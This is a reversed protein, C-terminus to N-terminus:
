KCFCGVIRDTRDFDRKQRPKYCFLSTPATTINGQSTCRGGCGFKFAVKGIASAPRAEGSACQSGHRDQAASKGAMTCVKACSSRGDSQIWKGIKRRGGGNGGGGNGGPRTCRKWKIGFKENVEGDMSDVTMLGTGVRESERSGPHIVQFEGKCNGSVILNKGQFKYTRDRHCRNQSKEKLLIVRKIKAATPCRKRKNRVSNCTIKEESVGASRTDVAIRTAIRLMKQQGCGSWDLNRVPIEVRREYDDSIPGNFTEIGLPTMGSGSIKYRAGHVGTVGEDLDAFGRYDVNFISFSWGRPMKMKLDVNCTRGSIGQTADESDVVFDDFLVTLALNDDSINTSVSGSPCGNGNYSIDLIKLKDARPAAQALATTASLIGIMSLIYKYQM